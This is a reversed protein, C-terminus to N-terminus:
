LQNQFSLKEFEPHVGSLRLGIGPDFRLYELTRGLEHFSSNEKRRMELLVKKLTHKVLNKGSSAKLIKLRPNRLDFKDYITNAIAIVNTDHRFLYEKAADRLLSSKGSGNEGIIINIDEETQQHYLLEPPIRFSDVYNM